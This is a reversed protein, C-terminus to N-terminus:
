KKSEEIRKNVEDNFRKALKNLVYLESLPMKLADKYQLGGDFSKVVNFM